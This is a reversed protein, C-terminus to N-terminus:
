SLVPADHAPLSQAPVDAAGCGFRQEYVDAMQRLLSACDGDYSSGHM